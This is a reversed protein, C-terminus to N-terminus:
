YIVADEGQTSTVILLADARVAPDLAAFLDLTAQAHAEDCAIVYLM